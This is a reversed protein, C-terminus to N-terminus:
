GESKAYLVAFASRKLRYIGDADWSSWSGPDDFYRLAEKAETRVEELIYLSHLVVGVGELPRRAGQGQINVMLGTM